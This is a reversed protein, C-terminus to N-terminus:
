EEQAEARYMGAIRGRHLRVDQRCLLHRRVSFLPVEWARAIREAEDARDDFWISAIRLLEAPDSLTEAGVWGVAIAFDGAILAREYGTADKGVLKCPIGRPGLDALLKEAVLVSVPDDNRYVIPLPQAIAPAELAAAPVVVRDAGSMGIADIPQADAKVAERLIAQKDITGQLFRRLDDGASPGLALFYREEGVKVMRADELLKGKAYEIDKRRTLVLADYHGLSYALFSNTEGGLRLELHELYPQAGYSNNNPKLKMAQGDRRALAYPGINLGPPILERSHMRELAQADDAALKIGIRREDLVAFGPIVAERGQIFGELGKVHRFLARGRAPHKRVYGTWADVLDFATVAKGTGDVMGSDLRIAVRRPSLQKAELPYRPEPTTVSDTVDEREGWSPPPIEKPQPLAFPQATILLSFQEDLFGRDTYISLRGARQPTTTDMMVLSDGAAIDQPILIEVEQFAPQDV